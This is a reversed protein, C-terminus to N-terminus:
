EGVVVGDVWIAGKAEVLVFYMGPTWGKIPINLITQTSARNEMLRGQSDIIRVQYRPIAITEVELHIVDTVQTPFLRISETLLSRNSTSIGSIAISECVEASLKGEVTLASICLQHPGSSLLNALNPSFEVDVSRAPEALFFTDRATQLTDQSFYYVFGAIQNTPPAIKAYFNRRMTHSWQQTEPDYVRTYLRHLGPSVDTLPITFETAQSDMVVQTAQGIGPDTDIFYELTLSSQAFGAMFLCLGLSLTILKKM